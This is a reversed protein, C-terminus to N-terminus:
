STALAVGADALAAPDVQRGVLSRIPEIADWRNVHMGASVRGDAGIWFAEFGADGLEGSVVLRDGPAHLGAYEMGVDYQDSFFYPLRDYPEDEGLM